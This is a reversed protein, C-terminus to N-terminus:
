AESDPERKALLVMADLLEAMTVGAREALTEWPPQDPVDHLAVLVRVHPPIASNTLAM